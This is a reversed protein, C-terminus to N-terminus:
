ESRTFGWSDWFWNSVSGDPSRFRLVPKDKPASPHSSDTLFVNAAPKGNGNLADDEASGVANASIDYESLGIAMGSVEMEAVDMGMYSSMWQPTVGDPGYEYVFLHQFWNNEDEKVWFPRSAGFHGKKWCLLLIEIAEDGDIDCVLADQVLIDEPSSWIKQAAQTYKDQTYDNKAYRDQTYMSQLYMKQADEDQAYADQLHVITKRHDIRIGIPSNEQAIREGSKWEIWGPLFWGANRGYLLVAALVIVAAICIICCLFIRRRRPSDAAGGDSSRCWKGRRTKNGAM